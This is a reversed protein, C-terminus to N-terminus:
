PASRKIVFDRFAFGNQEVLPGDAIEEATYALSGDGYLRLYILWPLEEPSQLPIQTARVENRDQLLHQALQQIRARSMSRQLERETRAQAAVLDAESIEPLPAVDPEFSVAARTPTALSETEALELKHLRILAPAVEAFQAPSAALLTQVISNLQGSTTTHAALQLEVTRVAANVFQSHRTDIAQLIQDLAEFHERISRLQQQLHLHAAQTSASEGVQRLRRAAEELVETQELQTTAELIGPRFRSVHDTTRLQHYARDVIEERYRLLLRDLVQKAQSEQLIQKIHEGINQQLEKLSNLLQLTQRHAQPIGLYANPTEQLLNQLITYTSFILGALPPPENALIEALTRLLRFAYDPLIYLVDFNSQTESRVWGSNELYRLIQRAREALQDAEDGSADADAQAEATLDFNQPDRLQAYILSLVLERSLPEPRNQTQAFIELLIRLYVPAGHAALPRFLTEPLTEM